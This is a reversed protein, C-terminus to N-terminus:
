NEVFVFKDFDSAVQLQKALLIDIATSVAVLESSKEYNFDCYAKVINLLDISSNINREIENIKEVCFSNEM